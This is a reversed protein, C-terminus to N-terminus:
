IKFTITIVQEGGISNLVSIILVSQVLHRRRVADTKRAVTRSQISSQIGFVSNEVRQHRALLRGDDGESLSVLRSDDRRQGNLVPHYGAAGKIAVNAEVIRVIVLLNRHQIPCVGAADRLELEVM